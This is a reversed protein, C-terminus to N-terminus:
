YWLQAKPIDYQCSTSPTVVRFDSGRYSGNCSARIALNNLDPYTKTGNSGIAQAPGGDISITYGDPDRDGAPAPKGAQDLTRNALGVASGPRLRCFSDGVSLALGLWVAVRGRSFHKRQKPIM